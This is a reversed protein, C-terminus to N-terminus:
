ASWVRDDNADIDDVAECMPRRESSPQLRCARRSARLTRRGLRGRRTAAATPAASSCPAGVTVTAGVNVWRRAHRRGVSSGAVVEREMQLDGVPPACAAVGAMSGEMVWGCSTQTLYKELDLLMSCCISMTTMM